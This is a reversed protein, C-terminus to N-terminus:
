AFLLLLRKLVVPINSYRFHDLTNFIALDKDVYDIEPLNEIFSFDIVPVTTNDM